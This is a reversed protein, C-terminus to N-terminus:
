PTPSRPHQPGAPAYEDGLGYKELATLAYTRWRGVWPSYEVAARHAPSTSLLWRDGDNHAWFALPKSGYAFLNLLLGPLLAFTAILVHRRRRRAEGPSFPFSDAPRSKTM